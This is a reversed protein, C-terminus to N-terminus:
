LTSIWIITWTSTSTHSIIDKSFVKNDGLWDWKYDHPYSKNMNVICSCACVVVCEIVNTVIIEWVKIRFKIIIRIQWNKLRYCPLIICFKSAPVFSIRQLVLAMDHAPLTSNYIQQIQMVLSIYMIVSSSYSFWEITIM